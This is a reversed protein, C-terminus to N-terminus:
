WYVGMGRSLPVAVGNLEMHRLGCCTPAYARTPVGLDPRCAKTLLCSLAGRGLLSNGSQLLVHMTGTAEPGGEVVMRLGRCCVWVGLSRRPSVM